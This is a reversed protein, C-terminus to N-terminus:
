GQKAKGQQPEERRPSVRILLASANDLPAVGEAHGSNGPAPHDHPDREKEAQETSQRLDPKGGTPESDIAQKDHGEDAPDSSPIQAPHPMPEARITEASEIPPVPEDQRRNGEQQNQDRDYREESARGITIRDAIVQRAGDM